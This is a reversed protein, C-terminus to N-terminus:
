TKQLDTHLADVTCHEPGKALQFASVCGLFGPDTFLIFHFLDIFYISSIIYEGTYSNNNNHKGRKRKKKKKERERESEREKEKERTM